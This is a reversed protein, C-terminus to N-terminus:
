HSPKEAELQVDYTVLFALQQVEHYSRAVYVVPFRKFVLGKHLEHIALQNASLPYILLRSNSRRKTSPMCNTVFSFFLMFPASVLKDSLSNNLLLAIMSVTFSSNFFMACTSCELCLDNPLKTTLVSPASAAYQQKGFFGQM